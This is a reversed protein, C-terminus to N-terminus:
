AVTGANLLQLLERCDGAHEFWAVPVTGPKASVAALAAFRESLEAAAAALFDFDM